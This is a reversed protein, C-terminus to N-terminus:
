RDLTTFKTNVFKNAPVRFFLSLLIPFHLNAAIVAGGEAGAQECIEETKRRPRSFQFDLFITIGGPMM